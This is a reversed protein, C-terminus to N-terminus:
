YLNNIFVIRIIIQKYPSHGKSILFCISPQFQILLSSFPPSKPFRGLNRNPKLVAFLPKTTLVNLPPCLFPMKNKLPLKKLIFSRKKRCRSCKKSCRSHKKRCRSCKKRCRTPKKCCRSCKKYCRLHKKHCRTPKKSCRTPKKCCRTPKKSCRSCKKYCRTLKKYCRLPM